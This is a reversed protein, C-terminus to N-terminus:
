WVLDWVIESTAGWWDTVVATVTGTEGPQLQITKTFWGSSNVTIEVGQVSPLGGLRVKLGGPYEDVVTGQFGWVGSGADIADFNQIVPTTNTLSASRSGSQNWVDSVTAIINGLASAETTIDFDGYANTVGSALVVGTFHVMLGAPSEDTVHGTLRVNHSGAQAVTLTLSPVASTVNDSAYAALQENDVATAVVEGLQSAEVQLSFYGQPNAMCTGTAVGTFNLQVAGRNEDAVTGSLLVQRGSVVSADFLTIQPAAPCDRAELSELTPRVRRGQTRQPRSDTSFWRWM